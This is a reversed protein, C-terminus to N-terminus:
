HALRFPSIFMGTTVDVVIVTGAFESTHPNDSVHVGFGGPVGFGGVGGEAGAFCVTALALRGM